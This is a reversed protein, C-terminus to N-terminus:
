PAGDDFGVLSDGSPVEAGMIRNFHADIRADIEDDIPTLVPDSDWLGLEDDLDVCFEFCRCEPEGRRVALAAERFHAEEEEYRRNEEDHALWPDMYRKEEQTLPGGQVLYRQWMAETVPDRLVRDQM